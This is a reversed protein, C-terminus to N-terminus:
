KRRKNKKTKTTVEISIKEYRTKVPIKEMLSDIEENKAIILENKLILQKYLENESKCMITSLNRASKNTSNAM